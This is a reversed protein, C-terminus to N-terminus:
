MGYIKHASLPYRFITGAGGMICPFDMQMGKRNPKGIMFDWTNIYSVKDANKTYAMVVNEGSPGAGDCYNCAAWTKIEDKYNERLFQMITIPSDSAIQRWNLLTYDGIGMIVTDAAEVDKSQTKITGLLVGIDRIIQQASKNEWLPSASDGDSAVVTENVNPHNLLGYFGHDENGLFILEDEQRMMVDKAAMALSADLPLGAMNSSEIDKETYAYSAGIEKVKVEHEKMNLTVLPFDNAYNAIFKAQGVVDMFKYLYTKAGKQELLSVPVLNRGKLNPYEKKYIKKAVIELERKAFLGTDSDFNMQDVINAYASM